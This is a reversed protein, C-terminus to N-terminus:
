FDETTSTVTRTLTKEEGNPYIATFSLLNTGEEISLSTTFDGNQNSKIVQDSARTSIIITAAPTAKGSITITRKDFVGEDKPQDITIYNTNDSDQDLQKTQDAIVTPKPQTDEENITRTMQYIYFGGGAVSLGLLLAVIALVIKEKSM